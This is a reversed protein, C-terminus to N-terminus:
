RNICILTAVLLGLLISKIIISFWGIFKIRDNGDADSEIKVPTIFGIGINITYLILWKEWWSKKLINSYWESGFVNFSFIFSFLIFLFICASIIQTILLLLRKRKFVRHDRDEERECIYTSNLNIIRDGMITLLNGPINKRKRTGDKKLKWRQAKILHLKELKSIDLHNLEYDAVFGSYLQTTGDTEAILVDVYSYIVKLRNPKGSASRM